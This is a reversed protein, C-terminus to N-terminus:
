GATAEHGWAVWGPVTNRAFLEIRGVSPYASAIYDRVQAPKESHRGSTAGDFVSSRLQPPPPMDGKTAVLLPEFQGRFWQGCTISPKVWVAFTKFTFGWAGVVRLAEPFMAPVFWMFLVSDRAAIEHVPLACIDTVSMTPYHLDPAKLLGGDSYCEFHWPPDAYLVPFSRGLLALPAALSAREIAEARETRRAALVITSNSKGNGLEAAVDRQRAAPLRAVM